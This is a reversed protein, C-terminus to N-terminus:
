KKILLNAFSAIQATPVEFYYDDLPKRDLSFPVTFPLLSYQTLSEYNSSMYFRAVDPNTDSIKYYFHFLSTTGRSTTLWDYKAILSGLVSAIKELYDDTVEFSGFGFLNLEYMNETNAIEGTNKDVVMYVIVPKSEDREINRITKHQHRNFKKTILLLDRQEMKVNRVEISEFNDMGLKYFGQDFKETDQSGLTIYQIKNKGELWQDDMGKMWGTAKNLSWLVESSIVPLSKNEREQAHVSLWFFLFLSLCTLIKRM